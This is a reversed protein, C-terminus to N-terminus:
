LRVLAAKEAFRRFSNSRKIRTWDPIAQALRLAHNRDSYKRTRGLERQFISILETKPKAIQRDPRNYEPLQGVQHPHKLGSLVIQLARRDAMLWCELEQEVCMLVIKSLKVKADNLSKSALAKHDSRCPKKSKEWPPILDWMVVVRKCTKLLEYAVPGCESLLRPRNDLFRPEMEINQNLRGLLYRAVQYDPGDRGCEFIFGVKELM